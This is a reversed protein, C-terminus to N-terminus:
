IQNHRSGKLPPRNMENKDGNGIQQDIHENMIRQHELGEFYAKRTAHGLWILYVALM